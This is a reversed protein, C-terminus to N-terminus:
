KLDKDYFFVLILVMAFKVTPMYEYKYVRFEWREFLRPTMSISKVKKGGEVGKKNCNLIKKDLFNWGEIKIGVKKNILEPVKAGGGHSNSLHSHNCVLVCTVIGTIL